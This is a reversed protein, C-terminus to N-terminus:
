GGGDDRRSRASSRSPTSSEEAAETAAVTGALEPWMPSQCRRRGFIIKPIATAIAAVTRWINTRAQDVAATARGLFQMAEAESEGFAGGLPNDGIGALRRSGRRSHRDGIKLTKAPAETPRGTFDRATAFATTVAIDIALAFGTLGITVIGTMLAAFLVEDQPAIHNPTPTPRSTSAGAATWRTTASGASCCARAPRRPRSLRPHRRHHQHGLPPRRARHLDAAAHGAIERIQHRPVERRLRAVLQHRRGESVPCLGLGLPRLQQLAQPSPQRGSFAGNVVVQTGHVTGPNQLQVQVAQAWRAPPARVAHSPHRDGRAPALHQYGAAVRGATQRARRRPHRRRPRGPYRGRLRIPRARHVDYRGQRVPDHLLQLDHGQDHDHGPQGNRDMAQVPLVPYNGPQGLYSGLNTVEATKHLLSKTAAVATSNKTAVNPHVMTM